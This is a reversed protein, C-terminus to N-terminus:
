NFILDNLNIQKAEVPKEKGIFVEIDWDGGNLIIARNTRGYISDLIIDRDSEPRSSVISDVMDDIIHFNYDKMYTKEIYSSNDLYLIDTTKTSYAIIPGPMDTSNWRYDIYNDDSLIRKKSNLYARYHDKKKDTWKITIIIDIDEHSFSKPEQLRRCNSVIVGFIGGLLIIGIWTVMSKM